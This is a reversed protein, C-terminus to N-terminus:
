APIAFPLRLGVSGAGLSPPPTMPRPGTPLTTRRHEDDEDSRDDHDDGLLLDPRVGLFTFRVGDPHGPRAEVQDRQVARAFDV